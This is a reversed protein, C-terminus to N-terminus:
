ALEPGGFSNWCSVAIASTGGIVSGTDAGVITGYADVRLAVYGDPSSSVNSPKSTGTPVMPNAIKAGWATSGIGFFTAASGAMFEVETRMVYFENASKRYRPVALWTNQDTLKGLGAVENGPGTQSAICRLSSSSQALVSGSPVTLAAPVAFAGKILRRRASAKDAAALEEVKNKV